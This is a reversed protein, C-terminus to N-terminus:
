DFHPDVAPPQEIPDYEPLIEPEGHELHLRGIVADEPGFYSRETHEFGGMQPLDGSQVAREMMNYRITNYLESYDGDFGLKDVVQLLQSLIENTTLATLNTPHPAHHRADEDLRGWFTRYVDRLSAKSSRDEQLVRMRMYNEDWTDPPANDTFYQQIAQRQQTNPGRGGGTMSLIELVDDRVAEDVLENVLRDVAQTDGARLRAQLDNIIERQDAVLELSGQLGDALTNLETMMDLVLINGIDERIQTPLQALLAQQDEKTHANLARMAIPEFIRTGDIAWKTQLEVKGPLLRLGFRERVDNDAVQKAVNNEQCKSLFAKGDQIRFKGGCRARVMDDYQRTTLM